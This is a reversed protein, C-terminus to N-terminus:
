PQKKTAERYKADAREAEEPSILGDGDTDIKRFDEKSGLFERLSVYGDGNRDMKRFWLPGKSLSPTKQNAAAQPLVVGKLTSALGRNASTYRFVIDFQHPIKAKTICEERDTDLPALRDWARV